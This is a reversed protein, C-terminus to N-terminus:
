TKVHQETQWPCSDLDTANTTNNLKNTQKKMFIKLLKVSVEENDDEDGTIGLVVYRADGFACSRQLTRREPFSDLQNFQM